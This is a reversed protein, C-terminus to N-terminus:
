VRRFKNLLKVSEIDKLDTKIIDKWRHRAEALLRRGANKGCKQANRMEAMCATHETLRMPNYM